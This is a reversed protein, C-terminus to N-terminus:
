ATSMAPGAPAILTVRKLRLAKSAETHIFRTEGSMFRTVCVTTIDDPSSGSGYPVYVPTPITIM